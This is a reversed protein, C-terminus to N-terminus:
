APNELGAVRDTLDSVEVATALTEVDPVEVYLEAFEAATWPGSVATTGSVVQKTLTEGSAVTIRRTDPEVTLSGEVTVQATDESVISWVRNKVGELFVLVDDGNSGTYTVATLRHAYAAM